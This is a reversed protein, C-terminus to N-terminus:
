EYRLASTRFAFCVTALALGAVNLLAYSEDRALTRLAIKWMTSNM